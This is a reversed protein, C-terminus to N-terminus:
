LGPPVCNPPPSTFNMVLRLVLVLFGRRPIVGIGISRAGNVPTAMSYAFALQDLRLPVLVLVLLVIFTVIITSATISVVVSAVM